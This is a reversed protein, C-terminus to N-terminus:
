DDFPDNVKLVRYKGRQAELYTTYAKNTTGEPGRYSVQSM